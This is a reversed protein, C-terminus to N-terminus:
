NTIYRHKKTASKLNYSSGWGGGIGWGDIAINIIMTWIKKLRSIDLTNRFECSQKQSTFSHPQKGQERSKILKNLSQILDQTATRSCICSHRHSSETMWLNSNSFIINANFIININWTKLFFFLNQSHIKFKSALEMKSCVYRRYNSLCCNSLSSM